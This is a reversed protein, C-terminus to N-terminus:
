EGKQKLALAVARAVRRGHSNKTNSQFEDMPFETIDFGQDQLENVFEGFWHDWFENYLAKLFGDVLPEIRDVIEAETRMAM